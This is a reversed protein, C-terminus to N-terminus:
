PAKRRIVLAQARDNWGAAVLCDATGSTLSEGSASEDQYLVAEYGASVQLSSISKAAVGLARLKAADYTGTTLHRAAGTHGCDKYVVATPHVREVVMSSAADNFNADVLCGDDAERVLSEGAFMDERYLTVRYGSAVRLSSLDKAAIGHYELDAQTYRGILFGARWIGDYNCDKFAAVPDPAKINAAPTNGLRAFARAASAQYLLGTKGPVGVETWTEPYRGDADKSNEHLFTLYGAAVNLWTPDKDENYLDVFANTMDHGGWQGTERLAHSAWDIYTSEMAYAIHEADNLYTRDGTLQWLLLAGQLIVANEYGRYGPGYGFRNAKVWNYLRLADTLYHEDGGAKRIMLSSVMTPATACLCTGDADGEHFRIGGGPQASPANEGSMSFAIVDKARNLYTANNTKAYLELLAKAIWANDDYYRDGCGNAAANYAWRGNTNCWYAEHVKNAFAEAEAIRGAAILAHLQVGAAWAFSAADDGLNERYLETGPKRFDREIMDLTETGWAAFVNGAQEPHTNLTPDAEEPPIAADYAGADVADGDDGGDEDHGADLDTSDGGDSPGDSEDDEHTTGDDGTSPDEDAGHDSDSHSAGHCGLLCFSLTFVTLFRNQV